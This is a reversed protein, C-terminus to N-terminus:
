DTSSHEGIQRVKGRRDGGPGTVVLWLAIDDISVALWTYLWCLLCSHPIKFRAKYSRHVHVPFPTNPALKM